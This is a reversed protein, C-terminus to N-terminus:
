QSDISMKEGISKIDVAHFSYRMHGDMCPVSCKYYHYVNFGM